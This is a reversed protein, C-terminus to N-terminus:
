GLRIARCVAGTACTPKDRVVNINDARLTLEGGEPMADRANLALNFIALELEASDCRVMWVDDRRQVRVLVSDGVATQALAALGPLVERLDVKRLTLPQKKTAGMLTRV